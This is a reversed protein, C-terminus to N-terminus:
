RNKATTAEHSTATIAHISESLWQRSSEMAQNMHQVDLLIHKGQSFTDRIAQLQAAIANKDSDAVCGRGVRNLQTFLHQLVRADQQAYTRIPTICHELLEDMPVPQLFIRAVGAKSYITCREFQSVKDILLSALFDIAKIATAPDNLSPSLAKVAIESIHKFGFLYHDELKEETYFLFCQHVKAQLEEPIAHSTCLYDCPKVLFDGIAYNVRVQFDHVECLHLLEAEEVCKLYGSTPVPLCHWQSTSPLEDKKSTHSGDLVSKTHKNLKHLISDVQISLSISHIFFAFLGLCVLGLLLGLLVGLSPITYQEASPQFNLIIILCYCITGLYFGLVIQNDKHTVLGPLLRPSLNSSAQNLVVMVMSFSFVMLTIVSAVITGLLLRADEISKALVVKFLPKFEVIWPKYELWMALMGLFTLGIAILVPYFAISGSLKRLLKNLKPSALM